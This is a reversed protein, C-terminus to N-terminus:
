HAPTPRDEPQPTGSSLAPDLAPPKARGGIYLWLASAWMALSVFAFGAELRGGWQAAVGLGLAGIAYGLDRWFRYIGIASARWATPAWDAVAASLNPYLMAMGLGAAAAALSWGVLGDGLPLAGVGLGCLLMGGVNLAQRGWRDSLRGTILQALGWSLGYVGTVWGIGALGLGQQFLYVPWFVWVLADAFKEVLGAQCVAALRPDGWSVWRLVVRLPAAPTAASTTGLWDRTEVVGWAALLTGAGIVAVGFGLLADRASLLPALWGTAVGALAVGLYGAFENLGIALGRQDPRALDLKATQTMSWALGQQIGLLATALVVWSWSQASWLLFPIPWAALWGLLLVPKRGVRDAWRGALLNMVAKVGGFAVVFGMLALLSGKPVGFESEALAPVVNRMLGISMGVLLVQLLQHAFQAGNVRVGHVRQTASYM